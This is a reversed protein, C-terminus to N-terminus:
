RLVVDARRVVRIDPRPYSMDGELRVSLVFRQPQVIPISGAAEGAAVRAVLEVLAPWAFSTDLAYAMTAGTHVDASTAFISPKRWVRLREIILPSALVALYSRPICWAEYAQVAPDSLVQQVEQVTDAHLITLEMGLQQALPPLTEAARVSQGWSRDGLIAIHRIDPFADHLLEIRKGDLQDSIWLGTIAEDRWLVSRVIEFRVPDLYSAFVVPIGGHGRRAAMAADGNPAVIISPQRQVATRVADDLEGAGGGRSGIFEVRSRRFLAPQHERLAGLFREFGADATASTRGLYVISFTPETDHHLDSRLTLTLCAVVCAAVLAHAMQVSRVAVGKRYEAGARHM